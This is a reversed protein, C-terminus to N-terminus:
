LTACVWLSCGASANEAFENAECSGLENAELQSSALIFTLEDKPEGSCDSVTSFYQATVLGSTAGPEVYYSTGTDSLGVLCGGCSTAAHVPLSVSDVVPKQWALATVGSVGLAKTLKRKTSDM